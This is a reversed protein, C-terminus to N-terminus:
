IRWKAAGGSKSRSRELNGLTSSINIQELITFGRM